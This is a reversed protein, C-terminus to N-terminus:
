HCHTPPRGAAAGVPGTDPLQELDVARGMVPNLVPGRGTRQQDENIVGGTPQHGEPEHRDLGGLRIHFGHLSVESLIAAWHGDIGILVTDEPDIVFVSLPLAGLEGASQLGQVDRRDM